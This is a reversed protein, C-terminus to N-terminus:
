MKLTLSIAAEIKNESYKKDFETLYSEDFEKEKKGTDVFLIRSYKNKENLLYGEVKEEKIEEKVEEEAENESYRRLDFKYLQL